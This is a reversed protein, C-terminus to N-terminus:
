PKLASMETELAEIQALGIPDNQLGSRARQIAAQAREPQKLVGYARILKKWGEVNGPNAVLKADLQNVMGEIMATRDGQSLAAANKIDANTPGLNGQQLQRNADDIEDVMTIVMQRWPANAASRKLLEQLTKKAGSFDGQQALGRALFVYPEPTEPSIISARKFANLAPENMEGNNQKTLAEGLGMEYNYTAGNLKIALQFANVADDFRGFKLYIPATLSWGQGDSPNQALHAEAKALLTEVSANEVPANLRAQIPQDRMEPQGSNIYFGWSFFPISFVTAVLIRKAYRSAGPQRYDSKITDARLIRRSIEMRANVAEIGTFLGRKADAEIEKLQDKYVEIDLPDNRFPVHTLYPFAVAVVATFTMVACTIWFVM